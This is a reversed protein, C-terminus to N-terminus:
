PHYGLEKNEECPQNESDFVRSNENGGHLGENAPAPVKIPFFAVLEKGLDFEESESKCRAENEKVADTSFKTPALFPKRSLM